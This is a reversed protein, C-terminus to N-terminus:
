QRLVGSIELMSLIFLCVFVACIRCSDLLKSQTKHLEKEVVDYNESIDSIKNSLFCIKKSKKCVNDQLDAVEDNLKQFISLPVGLVNELEPSWIIYHQQGNVSFAKSQRQEVTFDCHLIQPHANEISMVNDEFGNFRLDFRNGHFAYHTKKIELLTCM